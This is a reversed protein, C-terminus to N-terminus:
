KTLSVIIQFIYIYAHLKPTLFLKLKSKTKTSISSIKSSLNRISSLYLISMTKQQLDQHLLTALYDARAAAVTPEDVMDAVLQTNPNLPGAYGYGVAAVPAAAVAPKDVPVVPRNPHAILRRNLNLPGAYGYGVAAVPAAM